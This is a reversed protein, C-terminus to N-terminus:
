FKGDNGVNMIIVCPRPFCSVTCLNSSKIVGSNIQNSKRNIADKFLVYPTGTQIISTMMKNWIDRAPLTKVALGERECRVYASEFEEGYMSSLDVPTTSPDFLSWDANSKVRTMFLDSTWFGYFLSRDRMEDPGHPLKMELFAMIDPHHPSIYVAFSGKRQPFYFVHTLIGDNVM